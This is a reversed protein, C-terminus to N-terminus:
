KQRMRADILKDIDADNEPLDGKAARDLLQTGTPATPSRRAPGTNSVDASKRQEAKVALVPKLYEHAKQMSVNNDKAYKIVEDVDAEHIDAKALYLIDKQSLESKQENSPADASQQTNAPPKTWKGDKFEYGESELFRNQANLKGRYDTKDAQNDNGQDNGSDNQNQDNQTDDQNSQDNAQDQAQDQANDDNTM